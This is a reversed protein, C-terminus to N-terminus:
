KPANKLFNQITLRAEKLDSLNDVKLKLVQEGNPQLKIELDMGRPKTLFKAPLELLKGINEANFVTQLWEGMGKAGAESIGTSVMSVREVLDSDRFEELLFLLDNELEDSDADPSTLNFSLIPM